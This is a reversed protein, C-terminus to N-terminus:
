DHGHTQSEGPTQAVQFLHVGLLVIILFPAFYFLVDVLLEEKGAAPGITM